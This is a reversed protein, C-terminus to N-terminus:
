KYESNIIDNITLNEAPLMLLEYPLCNIDSVPTVVTFRRVGEVSNIAKWIDSVNLSSGISFPKLDFLENIATIVNNRVTQYNTVNEYEVNAEIVVNKILPQKFEIYTTFHNYKNLTPLDASQIDSNTYFNGTYSGYVNVTSTSTITITGGSGHTLSTAADLTDNNVTINSKGRLNSSFVENESTKLRINFLSAALNVIDIEFTYVIGDITNSWRLIDGTRYGENLNNLTVKYEYYQM